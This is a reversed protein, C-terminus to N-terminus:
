NFCNLFDESVRELLGAYGRPGTSYQGLLDITLTKLEFDQLMTEVVDMNSDSEMFLCAPAHNKLQERALVIDRISPQTDPDELLAFEHELQYHSEFYQYANHYVIYPRPNAISLSRSITNNVREIETRFEVLNQAYHQANEGDIIALQRVIEQAIAIGNDPNLWLHADVQSSSINHLQVGELQLATIVLDEQTRQRILDALYSEFEEGIWIFLDANAMNIRDSPKLSYHHPSQAPDVISTVTGLDEVIAEAILQLPRITTVVSVEAQSTNATLIAILLIFLTRM